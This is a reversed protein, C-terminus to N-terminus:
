FGLINVLFITEGQKKILLSLSPIIKYLLFLKLVNNYNFDFYAFILWLFIRLIFYYAHIFLVHLFPAGNENPMCSIWAANLLHM